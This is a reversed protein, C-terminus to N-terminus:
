RGGFLTLARALSVAAKRTEDHLGAGPPPPDGKGGMEGNWARLLRNAMKAVHLATDIDGQCDWDMEPKGHRTVVVEDALLAERLRKRCGMTRLRDYYQASM